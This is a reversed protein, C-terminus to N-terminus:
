RVSRRSRSPCLGVFPCRNSFLTMTQITPVSPPNEFKAIDGALDIAWPYDSSYVVYDIQASLRLSFLRASSTLAQLSPNFAQAPWNTRAAASKSERM